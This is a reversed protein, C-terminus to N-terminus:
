KVRLGKVPSDGFAFGNDHVDVPIGSPAPTPMHGQMRRFPHRASDSKCIEAADRMIIQKNPSAARKRQPLDQELNMKEIADHDNLLLLPM